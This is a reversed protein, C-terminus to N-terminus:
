RTGLGFFRRIDVIWEYMITWELLWVLLVIPVYTYFIKELM